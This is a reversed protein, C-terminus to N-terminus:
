MIDSARSFFRMRHSIMFLTSSFMPGQKRQKKLRGECFKPHEPTRRSKKHPLKYPPGYDTLHAAAAVGKQTTNITANYRSIRKRKFTGGSRYLGRAAHVRGDEENDNWGRRWVSTTHLFFNRPVLCEMSRLETSIRPNNSKVIRLLAWTSIPRRHLAPRTM